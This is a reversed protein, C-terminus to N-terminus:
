PYLDLRLQYEALLTNVAEIYREEAASVAQNDHQARTFSQLEGDEWAKAAQAYAEARIQWAREIGAHVQMLAETGPHIDDVKKALEAARPVVRDAFRIAVEQTELDKKKLGLAVNIFERTLTTNEAFLGEMQKVYTTAAQERASPGCSFLTLISLTLVM